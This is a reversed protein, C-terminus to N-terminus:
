AGLDEVIDRIYDRLWPQPEAHAMLVERMDPDGWSEAAQAAADRMEVDGVALAARVVEARWAATAPWEQRGLCRLVSAALGPHASDLSFSKLWELARHGDTSQLTERIVEGARHTM